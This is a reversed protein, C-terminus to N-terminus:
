LHRVVTGEDGRALVDHLRAILDRAEALHEALGHLRNMGLAGLHARPLAVLAGEEIAEEGDGSVRDGRLSVRAGHLRDGPCGRTLRARCHRIARRLVLRRWGGCRRPGDSGSSRGGGGGDSGSGLGRVVGGGDAGGDGGGGDRCRTLRGLLRRRWGRLSSAAALRARRWPRARRRRRGCRRGGSGRHWWSWASRRRQRLRRRSGVSATSILPTGRPMAGPHVWGNTPARQHSPPALTSSEVGGSRVRPPIAHTRALCRSSLVIM